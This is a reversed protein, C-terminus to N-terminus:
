GGAAAQEDEEEADLFEEFCVFEHVWKKLRSEGFMSIEPAALLAQLLAPEGQACIQAHMGNGVLATVHDAFVHGPAGMNLQGLILGAYM